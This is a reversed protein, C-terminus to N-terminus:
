CPSHAWLTSRPPASRPLAADTDDWALNLIKVKIATSVAGAFTLLDFLPRRRAAPRGGSCVPALRKREGSRM